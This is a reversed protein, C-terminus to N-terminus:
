LRVLLGERAKKHNKRNNQHNGPMINQPRVFAAFGAPAYLRFFSSYINM